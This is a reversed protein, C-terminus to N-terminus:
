ALMEGNDSYQHHERREEGKDGPHLVGRLSPVSFGEKLM